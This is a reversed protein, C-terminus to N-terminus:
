DKELTRISQLAKKRDAQARPANGQRTFAVSRTFYALAFDPNLEIAKSFDAVAQGAQEQATRWAATTSRARVQRRAFGQDFDAIAKDHEEKELYAYGRNHLDAGVQAKRLAASRYLGLDGQGARGPSTSWAAISTPSPL